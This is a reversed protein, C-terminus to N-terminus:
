GISSVASVEALKVLLDNPCAQIDITGHGDDDVGVRVNHKVLRSNEFVEVFDLLEGFGTILEQTDKYADASGGSLAIALLPVAGPIAWAYWPVSVDPTDINQVTSVIHGQEVALGFAGGMEITVDPFPFDISKGLHMKFRITGPSFFVETPARVYIGKKATANTDLFSMVRSPPNLVSDVVCASEDIQVTITRLVKTVGGSVASLQYSTASLPQVIEGGKRAVRADNLMVSFGSVPGEVNWALQSAGFPRIHDPTATFSVLKVDALVDVGGDGGPGGNPSHAV